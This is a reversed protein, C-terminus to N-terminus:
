DVFSLDFPGGRGAVSETGDKTVGQVVVYYEGPSLADAPLDITLSDGIAQSPSTRYKIKGSDAVVQARYAVFQPQSTFLVTLSLAASRSVNISKAGGRPDQPLFYRADVRPSRLDSIVSQQYAGIGLACLLLASVFVPAPRRLDGLMQALWGKEPTPDLTERAHSLFEGELRIQQFCDACDFYHGEFSEREDGTLEGLVYREVAHSSVAQDHSMTDISM